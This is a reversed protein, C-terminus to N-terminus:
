AHLEDLAEITLTAGSHVQRLAPADPNEIQGVPAIPSAARPESGRSVPTPGFFICLARGPPWIALDGVAAVDTAGPPLSVDLGVDGYIEDGWTSVSVRLPLAQWVADAAPTDLLRADAIHDDIRLRARRDPM